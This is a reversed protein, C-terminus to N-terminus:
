NKNNFKENLLKLKKLVTSEEGTRYVDKVSHLTIAEEHIAIAIELTKKHQNFWMRIEKKIEKPCLKDLYLIAVQYFYHSVIRGQASLTESYIVNKGEKQLQNVEIEYREKYKEKITLIEKSYDDDKINTRKKACDNNYFYYLAFIATGLEHKRFETILDSYFQYLMIRKPIFVAIFLSFAAIVWTLIIIIEKILEVM